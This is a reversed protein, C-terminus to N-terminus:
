PESDVRGDALANIAAVAEDLDSYVLRHCESAGIINMVSTFGAEGLMEYNFANMAVMMFGDAKSLAELNLPAGEQWRPFVILRPRAAIAQQRVSSTPAKVHAVTGKRTGYIAPGIVADPAFERIVDISGNKLAIPRPVAEFHGSGPRVLGFEDSLLRWGRHALAACLTSKGFGPAAPLLLGVGQRELVASHLMLFCHARFAVVLNIGWELVALAQPAPMDEHPRRGEVSFRVLPRYLRPFNRRQELAVRFSVIEDQPLLPYDAYLQMLPEILPDVTTRIHANFPGVRVTVGAGAALSAFETSTLDAVINSPPSPTIV